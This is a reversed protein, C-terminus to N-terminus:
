DDEELEEEEYQYSDYNEDIQEQKLNTLEKNKRNNSRLKLEQILRLFFCKLTSQVNNHKGEIDEQLSDSNKNEIKNKIANDIISFDEWEKKKLRVKELVEIPMDEISENYNSISYDNANDAIVISKDKDCILKNIYRLNLSYSEMLNRINKLEKLSDICDLEDNIQEDLYKVDETKLQFRFIEKKLLLLENLDLDGDFILYEVDDKDMQKLNEYTLKKNRNLLKNIYETDLEYKEMLDKYKNIDEVSQLEDLKDNIVLDIDSILSSDYIKIENRLSLLQTLTLIDFDLEEIDINYGILIKKINNKLM